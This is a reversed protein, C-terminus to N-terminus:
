LAPRHEPRARSTETAIRDSSEPGPPLLWEKTQDKRSLGATPTRPTSAVEGTEPSTAATAPCWKRGRAPTGPGASEHHDIRVRPGPCPRTDRGSPRLMFWRSGGGLWRERWEIGEADERHCERRGRRKVRCTRKRPSVSGVQSTRQPPSSSAM